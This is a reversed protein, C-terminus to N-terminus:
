SNGSKITFTLKKHPFSSNLNIKIPGSKSVCTSLRSGECEKVSGDFLTKNGSVKSYIALSKLFAIGTCTFLRKTFQEGELPVIWYCVPM